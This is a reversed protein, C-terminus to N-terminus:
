QPPAKPVSDTPSTDKPDATNQLDMKIYLTIPKKKNRLSKFNSSQIAHLALKDWEAGPSAIIQINQTNGETDVVLSLIVSAKAGKEFPVPRQAQKIESPPPVASSQARLAMPAVISVACIAILALRTRITHNTQTLNILTM